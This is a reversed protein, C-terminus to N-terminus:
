HRTRGADQIAKSLAASEYFELCSMIALNAGDIMAPRAPDVAVAARDIAQYVEMPKTSGVEQYLGAVRSADKELTTGKYAVEMCSAFAYGRLLDREQVKRGGKVLVVGGGGALLCLFPMLIKM